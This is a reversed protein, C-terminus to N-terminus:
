ICYLWTYEGCSHLSKVLFYSIKGVGAQLMVNIVPIAGLRKIIFRQGLSHISVYNSVIM